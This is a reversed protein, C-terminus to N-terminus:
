KTKTLCKSIEVILIPVAAVILIGLYELPLLMDLAFIQYVKPTLAIFVVMGFSILNAKNLYKNGFFGTKFLSQSSRLNFSHVIQSLSLILFAMTRAKSISGSMYGYWFGLLTLIAFMTGNAFIKIAFNKNIINENKSIPKQAMVNDLLKERGLAIAPLGDTVLNIWLLHMSLLPTQRWILMAIFVSIVEGINSGLLFLITRKINQFIKRGESVARVITSFNDDTLVIDAADKAVDTGTIGMACGIDAAKLAPADNVGDGTMAVTQGLEQWAKVIRIKDDPTARAYVSINQVERKFTEDSMKHLEESTIAKDTDQMIGLEKAIACATLLHDGTIMVPRIGAITCIEISKKVTPRVPDMLGILGILHLNHEDDITINDQSLDIEKCAIALVRLAGQSMNEAAKKIQVLDENICKKVVIDFAGKTIMLHKGDVDCLVSMTKRESDFPISSLRPYKETLDKKTDGLIHSAYVIATETPDGVHIIKGNEENITGNCCLTACKLLERVFDSTKENINEIKNNQTQYAKVVTMKNQTLTGTKDSCIVSASGLTEVAPLKRIIANQKAMRQVGIALVITVIAPLGEPIASVALSVSTMFIQNLPINWLAGLAFIMACITVALIGLIKGLKALRVQLPTQTSFENDLLTAIKGVQTKMGISTVIAKANGHTISCSSYIMNTRDALDTEKKLTANADKEVPISEGTLASEDSQLSESDVLRADAPVFDGAEVLIIDGVVVESANIIQEKGDRLVKAQPASLKALSDLAKEAKSEQNVGLIANAIIIILILIPEFFESSDNNQFAMYFSIAAAILLIIIMVDKFQELFKIWISKKKKQKLENRGFLELFGQADNSSLGSKANSNLENIVKEASLAHPLMQTM